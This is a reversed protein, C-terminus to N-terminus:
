PASCEASVLVVRGDGDSYGLYASGSSWDGGRGLCARALGDQRTWIQRGSNKDEAKPLGDNDIQSYCTGNEWNLCEATKYRSQPTINFNL